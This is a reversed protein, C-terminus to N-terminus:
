KVAPRRLHAHAVLRQAPVAEGYGDCEATNPAIDPGHAIVWGSSELWALAIHEVVSETFAATM